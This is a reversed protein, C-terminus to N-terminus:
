PLEELATILAALVGDADPSAAIAHVPLGAASAAEASPRGFAVVRTHGAPPGLLDVVARAASGATVVVADYGPWGAVLEPPAAPLPETTYTAVRRVTWGRAALADALTPAALASGPLLVTGGAGPADGLADALAAADSTGVLDVAVGVEALAAATARGVAAVRTGLSAPGRGSEVLTRVGAPSTFAVWDAPDAPLEGPLPRQVTLPVADVLAGSARIAEALPGDPRPLLVRRGVLAPHTGPAWLARAHFEAIRRPRGAGLPAVEDAGAALLRHAARRGLAAADAPWVAAVSVTVAADGAAAVVTARLRLRGDDLAARVGVPAACGADLAALVAREADTEARSARDDLTALAQAVNLDGARCEVALAGQGAAPLLDLVDTVADLRGLRALGARAVVVADLDPAVADPGLVRALRTGVNGRIEVVELDRRRQLVQAARRPSGTGVRAGPPLTTLTLGDRACLVDAADERRPIAALTLGEAEGTPLDKLSHVALDVEGALLARRLAAAFVGLGGADVLSGATADGDSRITVVEVEHGRAALADAVLGSQARALASGRTGLRLRM